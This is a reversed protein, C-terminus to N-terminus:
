EDKRLEEVENELALIQRTLTAFMVSIKESLADLGQQIDESLSAMSEVVDDHLKDRDTANAHSALRDLFDQFSEDEGVTGDEIKHIEYINASVLPMSKGLSLQHTGSAVDFHDYVATVWQNDPNLYLVKENPKYM